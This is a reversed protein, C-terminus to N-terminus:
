CFPQPAQVGSCKSYLWTVSRNYNNELIHWDRDDQVRFVQDYTNTLNEELCCLLNEVNAWQGTNNLMSCLIEKGTNGTPCVSLPLLVSITARRQLLNNSRLDVLLPGARRSIIPVTAVQSSPMTDVVVVQETKSGPVLQVRSDYTYSYTITGASPSKLVSTRIPAERLPCLTSSQCSVREYLIGSIENWCEIASEFKSKTVNFNTDRQELGTITGNITVTEFSANIDSVVEISYDEQCLPTGSDHVLLWSESVSFDGTTKNISTTRTHNYPTFGSPDFTFAGSVDTLISPDFGLRNIVWAKANQWGPTTTTGSICCNFGRAAVDHTIQLTQRNSEAGGSCGSLFYFAPTEPHAISWSESTTALCNFCSPDDVGSVGMLINDSLANWQIQADFNSTFVWNDNSPTFQLNNVQAYASILEQGDCSFSFLQCGSCSSLAVRMEDQLALLTAPGPNPKGLSVVKGTLNATHVINILNGAEDRVHQIGLTLQPVPDFSYGGYTMSVSM